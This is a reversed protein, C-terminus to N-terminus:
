MFLFATLCLSVLLSFKLGQAAYSAKELNLRSQQMVEQLCKYNDGEQIFPWYTINFWSDVVTKWIEITTENSGVGCDMQALWNDWDNTHCTSGVLTKKLSDTYNQYHAQGPYPCYGIGQANLTANMSCECGDEAILQDKYFYRCGQPSSYTTKLSCKFPGNGTLSSAYNDLNTKVSTIEACMASTKSKILAIGSKCLEGANLSDRFVNDFESYFGIETGTERVYMETCTLNNTLGDKPTQTWCTHDIKCSLDSVCPKGEGLLIKCTTQFPFTADPLCSFGVDCEYDHICTAGEDKGKCKGDVCNSSMCQLSVDCKRGNNLEQNFSTIDECSKRQYKSYVPSLKRETSSSIGNSFARAWSYEGEKLYCWQDAPCKFLRITDVVPATGPHDFCILGGIPDWCQLDPCQYQTNVTVVLIAATSLLIQKQKM